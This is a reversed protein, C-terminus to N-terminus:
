NCWTNQSGEAGPRGLPMQTTRKEAEDRRNSRRQIKIRKVVDIDAYLKYLEHNMRIRFTDDVRIPGYIKRLIKREFVALASEDSKRMTWTEAGYMLVPLILTKYLTLRNALTIRRKIELSVDNDSNVAAGLYIFNKVVEFKYYGMHMRQELRQSTKSSAILYKTKDENVKLGMIRSQKELKNFAGSVRDTHFSESLDAGVKVASKTNRLTMSCLRVIKTPIGLESMAVYFKERIPTDFAAKYDVFVHHTDIKREMTKELLQRLTFIQDITSKGPRFGCQYKGILNNTYPKLRDCIVGSLIKYANSLLSIGRYNTCVTPDGKKHIPCLVSLNWEDPMNEECWIRCLLQHICRVLEEGGAPLGDGGASKNNKLRSIAMRVEMYDEIEECERRELERKKRRFLSREFKRKERYRQTATNLEDQTIGQQLTARYAANKDATADRCEQDYWHNRRPREYGLVENGTWRLSNLIGGSSGTTITAKRYKTEKKYRSLRTRVKAAVLYHDSDINATRLTRVDLVSSSHRGDIIVHDIQNRRNKRHACTAKHIDLHKFRTSSIVMNRAAAFDILRMGNESTEDHLSFKGVIPGFVNEKGIKANFDGLVIKVDHKPCRDYLDDLRDYFRDKVGEDKEETPAHACILSINFFKSRIRITREDVPTFSIVTDRLRKCRIEQIATIDAKYNELVNTLQIKAGLRYLFLVNWTCIRLDHGEHDVCFRMSVKLYLGGRVKAPLWRISITTVYTEVPKFNM